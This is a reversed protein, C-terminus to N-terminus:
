PAAGKTAYYVHGVSSASFAIHPRMQGDLALSIWSSEDERASGSTVVDEIWRLEGDAGRAQRRYYVGSMPLSAHAVVYAMHLFGRADVTMAARHGIVSPRAADSVQEPIRQVLEFRPTDDPNTWSALWLEVHRASRTRHLFLASKKRKFVALSASEVAIGNPAGEPAITKPSSWSSGDFARYQLFVPGGPLTRVALAHAVGDEDVTTSFDGAGPVQIDVEGDITFAPGFAGSPPRVKSQIAGVFPAGSTGTSYLIALRGDNGRAMSSRVHRWIGGAVTEVASTEGSVADVSGLRLTDDDSYLVHLLDGKAPSLAVATGLLALDRAMVHVLAPERTSVAAVHLERQDAWKEIGYAVVARGEPTVGLALDTIPSAEAEVLVVRAGCAPDESEPASWARRCPTDPPYTVDEGADFVHPSPATPVDADTAVNDAARFPTCAVVGACALATTARKKPKM